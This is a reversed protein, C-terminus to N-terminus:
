GSEGRTAEGAMYWGIGFEYEVNLQLGYVASPGRLFEMEVRLWGTPDGQRQGAPRGSAV